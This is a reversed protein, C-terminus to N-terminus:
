EDGIDTIVTENGLIRINKVTGFDTVYLRMVKLGWGAANERIGKLVAERITSISCENCDHQNIYDAVIGLALTYLSKDFDQVKLCAKVADDVRYMIGGGFCLNIGSKTYVSQARLDIVQPMINLIDIEQILPWFLYLGPSLLKYKRGCTIRVGNEDPRIIQFRPVWCFLQSILEAIWQMSKYGM